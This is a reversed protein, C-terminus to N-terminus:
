DEQLDEDEHYEELCNKCTKKFYAASTNVDSFHYSFDSAMEEVEKYEKETVTKVVEAGCGCVEVIQFVDNAM